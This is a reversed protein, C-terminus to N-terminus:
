IFFAHFYTDAGLAGITLTDITTSVCMQIGVDFVMARPFDDFVEIATSPVAIRYDPTTGDVPTATLDFLHIWGDAGPAASLLIRMGFLIGPSSKFTVATLTVAQKINTTYSNAQEIPSNSNNSM